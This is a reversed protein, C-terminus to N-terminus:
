WMYTGDVGDVEKSGNIDAVYRAKVEGDKDGDEEDRCVFRLPDHQPPSVSPRDKCWPRNLVQRGLLLPLNFIM